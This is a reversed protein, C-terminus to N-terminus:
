LSNKVNFWVRVTSPREASSLLNNGRPKIMGKAVLKSFQQSARQYSRINGGRGITVEASELAQRVRRDIPKM